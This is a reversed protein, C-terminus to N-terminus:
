IQHFVHYHISCHSLFFLWMEAVDRAEMNSTLTLLPILSCKRGWHSVKFEHSVTAWGSSLLISKLSSAMSNVMFLLSALFLPLLGEQKRSDVETGTFPVLSL